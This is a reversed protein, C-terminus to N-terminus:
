RTPAEPVPTGHQATVVTHIGGRVTWTSEVVMWKPRCCGVLDDLIANTVDEYFIGRDRYSQLYQKLSKLELCFCRLLM